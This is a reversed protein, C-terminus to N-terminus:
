GKRVREREIHFDTGVERRGQYENEWVPDMVERLRTAYRNLDPALRTVTADGGEQSQKLHFKQV